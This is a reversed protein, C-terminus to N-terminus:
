RTVPVYVERGLKAMALMLWAKYAIKYIFPIKNWDIPAPEFHVKDKRRYFVILTYIIVMDSYYYLKDFSFTEEPFLKELTKKQYIYAKRMSCVTDLDMRNTISGRRQVYHYFRDPITSIKRAKALAKFLTATDEFGEVQEPFSINDFCKRAILKGWPYNNLYKQQSLCHMAQITDFEHHGSGPRYFAGYRYNMVFGCQVVDSHSETAKKFLSSIMRKDIYDDSDVFLIYDGHAHSLARNRASSIGQNKQHYVHIRQDMVAYNDLIQSSLDTSGDDICVVELDKYDSSLISNLCRMLYNEVNYVPVLVSIM